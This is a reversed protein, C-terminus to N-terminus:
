KYPPIPSTWIIKRDKNFLITSPTLVAQFGINDSLMVDPMGSAGVELLTRQAELADALVVRPGDSTVTLGLRAKGAADYLTLAPGDSGVDLGVRMRGAADVVQITRARIDAPRLADRVIGLAFATLLGLVIVSLGWGVMMLKVRRETARLVAELADLSGAPVMEYEKKTM